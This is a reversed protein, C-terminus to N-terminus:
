FVADNKLGKQRDLDYDYFILSKDKTYFVRRVPKQADSNMAADYIETIYLDM